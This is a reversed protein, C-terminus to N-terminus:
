SEAYRQHLDLWCGTSCWGRCPLFQRLLVYRLCSSAPSDSWVGRKDLWWLSILRTLKMAILVISHRSNWVLITRVDSYSSPFDFTYDQKLRDCYSQNENLSNGYVGYWDYPQVPAPGSSSFWGPREWGHREQFVCGAEELITHLPSQNMNRGALPEDFPSVISYNTAYSEHSRQRIWTQNGTVKPHFRRGTTVILM